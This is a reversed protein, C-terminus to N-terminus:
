FGSQGNKLPTPSSTARVKTQKYKGAKTLPPGMLESADVKAKMATEEASGAAQIRFTRTEKGGRTIQM